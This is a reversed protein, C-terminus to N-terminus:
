EKTVPHPTLHCACGCKEPSIFGAEGDCELHRQEFCQFSLAPLNKETEGIKIKIKKHPNDQGGRFAGM